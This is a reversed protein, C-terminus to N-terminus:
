TGTSGFGGSGRETEGLTEVVRVPPVYLSQIVLQAVRTGKELVVRNGSVNILPVHIEGRYDADIVGVGNALILGRKCLSSRAYAMIAFNADRQNTVVEIAIGTKCMKVSTDGAEFVYDESVVVDYGAASETMRCPVVANSNLIKVNLIM